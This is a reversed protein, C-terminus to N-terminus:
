NKFARIFKRFFVPIYPNNLYGGYNPLKFRTKKKLSRYKLFLDYYDKARKDIHYEDEVKRIAAKSKQELLKRDNHLRAISEAFANNDGVSLVFGIDETVVDTIGDNFKSIIPVCGASMSELLAVPLGDLRSPLIFIDNGAMEKVVDENHQFTHFTVNCDAPMAAQLNAKDPGDGILTWVPRINKEKLLGDIVPLDWIGKERVMRCAIVIKLAGGLNKTRKKASPVIGYPLYYIDNLRAPLLERLKHYFAINHAIYADILFDYKVANDLYWKDHCIYIVTKQIRRYLHLTILELDFNSLVVGSRKSILKILRAATELLKEPSKVDSKFVIEECCNYPAPLRADKFDDNEDFIWRTDFANYPDHSLLNYYFNQVGGMKNQSFVILEPKTAM